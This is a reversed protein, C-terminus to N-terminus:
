VVSKRDIVTRPARVDLLRTVVINRGDFIGILMEGFSVKASSNGIWVSLFAIILTALVFSAYVILAKLIKAKCKRM